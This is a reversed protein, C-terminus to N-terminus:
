YMAVIRYGGSVMDFLVVGLSFIDSRGEVVGGGAQEPSVYQLTGVFTGAATEAVATAENWSAPRDVDLTKAIGFDLVKAHGRVDIMINGPKIDRHVIGHRHADDIADAVEIGLQMVEGILMPGQMLRDRLTDGEVYQMAIFATGDSEGAEHVVAVNPHSLKSATIAERVFRRKSKEDTGSLIKLAVQRQLSPDEALYVEGMGGSGLQRLIRYRGVKEAIM